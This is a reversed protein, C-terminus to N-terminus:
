GAMRRRTFFAATVLMVLALAILGYTSLTPIAPAQPLPSLAADCAAQDTCSLTVGQLVTPSSHMNWFADIDDAVDDFSEFFELRLIGDADPVINPLGNDTFDMIGASSFEMGGDCPADEGTGPNLFFGTGSTNTMGLTAESCWSGNGSTMISVDFSVGTVENGAGIDLDMVVNDPDGQLDWSEIGDTVLSETPTGGAGRTVEGPQLKISGDTTGILFQGGKDQAIATSAILALALAVLLTKAPQQIKM